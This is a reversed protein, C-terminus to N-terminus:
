REAWRNVVQLLANISWESEGLTRTLETQLDGHCQTCASWESFDEIDGACAKCHVDFGFEPPGIKWCNDSSPM